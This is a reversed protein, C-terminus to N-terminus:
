LHEINNNKLYEKLYDDWAKELVKAGKTGTWIIFRREGDEFDLKVM